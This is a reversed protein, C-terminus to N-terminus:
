AESGDTNPHVAGVPVIARGMSPATRRTRARATRALAVALGGLLVGLLLAAFILLYLPMQLVLAPHTDSFPDLSLRVPARNAVAIVAAIFVTPVFILATSPKM